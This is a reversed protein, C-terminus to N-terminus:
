KISLSVGVDRERSMYRSESDEATSILHVIRNDDKTHKTTDSLDIVRIRSYHKERCKEALHLICVLCMLCWVCWVCWVGFVGFVGFVSFVGVVGGYNRKSINAHKERVPRIKRDVTRIQTRAFVKCKKRKKDTGRCSNAYRGLSHQTSTAEIVKGRTWAVAYQSDKAAALPKIKGSYSAVHSGKGFTKFAFLGKGAGALTSPRVDLGLKARLHQWCYNKRVCTRRKCRQRNERIFICQKCDITSM